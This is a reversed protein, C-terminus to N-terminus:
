TVFTGRPKTRNQGILDAVLKRRFLPTLPELLLLVAIQLYSRSFIQNAQESMSKLEQTSCHGLRLVGHIPGEIAKSHRALAYARNLLELSQLPNCLQLNSPLAISGVTRSRPNSMKCFVLDAASPAQRTGAEPDQDEAFAHRPRLIIIM